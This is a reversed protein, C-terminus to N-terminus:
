GIWENLMEQMEKRSGVGLIKCMNKIRYNLTNESIFHKEAFEKDSSGSKLLEIYDLDIKDSNCILNEIRNIIDIEADGTTEYTPHNASFHNAVYPRSYLNKFPMFNTSEEINLSGTIYSSIYSFEPNNVLTKYLKAAKQGCLSADFNYCTIRPTVASCLPSSGIAAVYLNSHSINRKKMEYIIKVACEPSACIVAEYDSYRSFFVKACKDINGYDSYCDYYPHIDALNFIQKSEKYAKYQNGHSPKNPNYGFYAVKKIGNEGFYQCLRFIAESEDFSITSIKTTHQSSLSTLVLPHISASTLRHICENLWIFTFGVVIVVPRKEEKEFYEKIYKIDEGGVERLKYKSKRLQTKIGDIYKDRFIKETEIRVSPESIVFCEM